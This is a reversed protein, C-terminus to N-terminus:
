IKQKHDECQHNWFEALFKPQSLSLKERLTRPIMVKQSQNSVEWFHQCFKNSVPELHRKTTTTKDWARGVSTLASRLQTSELAWGQSDRVDWRLGRSLSVLSAPPSWLSTSSLSLPFTESACMRQDHGYSKFASLTKKYIYPLWFVICM